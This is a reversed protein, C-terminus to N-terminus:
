AFIAKLKQCLQPQELMYMGTIFQDIAGVGAPLDRVEKKSIVDRIAEAFRDAHIVYYPRNYYHSVNTELPSTLSLRNHMRAVIEYAKSMHQERQKWSHAVLINEFIPTLKGACPLQAFAKGLWKSYPAYQREMLFCLKM